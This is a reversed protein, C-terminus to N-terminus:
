LKRKEKSRNQKMKILQIDIVSIQIQQAYVWHVCSATVVGHSTEVVLM